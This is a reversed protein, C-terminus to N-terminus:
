DVGKLKSLYFAAIPAGAFPIAAASEQSGLERAETFVTRAADTDGQELALLGEVVCLDAQQARLVLASIEILQKENLARQLELATMAPLMPSPGSLFGPIFTQLRNGFKDLQEQIAKRAFTLEARIAHLDERAQGYDGIAASQLLRLWEYASWRYPLPYISRGDKDKPPVLSSQGLTEKIARVERDALITRVDDAVRGLQLKMELELKIGQTGLVQRSTKALIDDLAQRGLGLKLALNTLAMRDGQLSPSAGAYKAQGDQVIRTLKENDTELFRMRYDYADALEGPRPGLKRAIRIQEVQHELAQDLYNRRGYLFFLQNHAEELEPNLRLAQELAAAIQVHRIEALPPVL